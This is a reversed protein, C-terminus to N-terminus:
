STPLGVKKCFATFRADNRYAILFPSYLLQTIGADHGEYARDLWKFASEPDKRAAYVDAIQFPGIDAYKDVLEKLAKDAGAHNEQLAYLIAFTYSRWFGDSEKEASQLAADGNGRFFEILAFETYFIDSNAQLEMAKRIAQEAEEYRRLPVLVQSLFNYMGARLPDLTLARHTLEVAESLRGTSGILVALSSAAAADSPELEAARRFETEAVVFDSKADQDVLGLAIHGLVLRPSLELAKRASEEAKAFADKLADAGLHEAGLSEWTFGLAAYAAAYHADLGVAQNYFDIAKRYDSETSLRSHFDGHLMADYARLDGNSPRWPTLLAVDPTAVHLNAAVAQLISIEVDFIDEIGRNYNESWIVSGDAADILKASIKIQDGTRSASGKLLCTAGLKTGISKADEDAKRFQFSSIRGMVKVERLRALGSILNASIGDSFYDDAANGSLNKFPLVAVTKDLEHAADKSRRQAPALYLLAAGLAAIAAIAIIWGLTSKGAHNSVVFSNGM